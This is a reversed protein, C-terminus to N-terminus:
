DRSDKKTKRDNAPKKAKQANNPSPGAGAPLERRVLVEGTKKDWEVTRVSLKHRFHCDTCVITRPDTKEPCRKKWRRLVSRAPADHTEHCERCMRDIDRPGYMKDPPTVNDEDNRHDLSEGHCKICGIEEQGHRVVLPEEELNGHCVYCASNDVKMEPKRSEDAEPLKEDMYGDLSLPPAAETTAEPGSPALLWSTLLWAFICGCLIGLVRKM